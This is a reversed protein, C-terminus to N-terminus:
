SAQAYISDSISLGMTIADMTDGSKSRYYGRRRGIQEFGFDAYFKRAPNNERVELFLNSVERKRSACILDNLLVRGMGRGRCEPRVGILLLEEEDMVHRSLAFACAKDTGKAPRAQENLLLLHTYPLTLADAIQKRSWVENWEPDFSAHMVSMVHDTETM